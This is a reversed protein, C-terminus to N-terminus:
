SSDPQSSRFFLFSMDVNVHDPSKVCVHGASKLLKGNDKYQPNQMIVCTSLRNKYSANYMNTMYQNIRREM